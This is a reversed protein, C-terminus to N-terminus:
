SALEKIQTLNGLRFRDHLIKRLSLPLTTAEQLNGIQKQYIAHWLQQTRYKPEGLGELQEQLVNVSLDLLNINTDM